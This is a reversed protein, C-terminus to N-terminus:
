YRQFEAFLVNVFGDGRYAVCLRHEPIPSRGGCVTDWQNTFRCGQHIKDWYEESDDSGSFTLLNRFDRDTLPESALFTLGLDDLLKKYIFANRGAYAGMRNKGNVYGCYGGEEIGEFVGSFQASSPDILSKRVSNLAQNKATPLYDCGSASLGLFMFLAMTKLKM